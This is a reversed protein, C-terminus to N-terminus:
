AMFGDFLRSLFKYTAVAPIAFCLFVIITMSSFYSADDVNKSQETEDLKLSITEIQEGLSQFSTSNNTDIKQIAELLQTRFETEPVENAELKDIFQELQVARKEAVAKEATIELQQQEQEAKAIEELEKENANKDVQLQLQDSRIQVDQKLIETLAKLENLIEEEM